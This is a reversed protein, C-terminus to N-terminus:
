SSAFSVGRQNRSVLRSPGKESLDEAQEPRRAELCSSAEKPGIKIGSSLFALMQMRKGALSPRGSVQLCSKPAFPAHALWHQSNLGGRLFGGGGEGWGVHNSVNLPSQEFAAAAM